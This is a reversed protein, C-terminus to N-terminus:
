SCGHHQTPNKVRCQHPKVVSYHGTFSHLLCGAPLGVRASHQVERGQESGTVLMVKHRETSHVATNQVVSGQVERNVSDVYGQM